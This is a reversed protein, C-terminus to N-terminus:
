PLTSLGSFNRPIYSSLASSTIYGAGNTLQNNNTPVSSSTIFGRGNTLQNNNTPITPRNSLSNYDGNFSSTGAGILSRVESGSIGSNLSPTSGNSLIAPNGYTTFGRGNTLQNNNTPISASTVYGAGNSLQNNNTPISPKNSLSNYDGNFSSTGAGILSRMEAASIGSNLSPTSGNSLVAPNGYTTYGAGNSLQTNNTPITPKNSLSNYDGNFSSTGAGILSRVESGSIGSNLTPSSGNSLIAPNGYTTYGAGNTLQNNNTPISSSTIYGSNNTLQSTQTPITPTGSLDTYRIQPLTLTGAGSQNATYTGTSNANHGYTKVTLAGNGVSSTASDLYDKTVLTSGSDSSATSAATVKGAFTANGDSFLTVKDVSNLSAKFATDGVTHEAFFGEKTIVRGDLDFTLDGGAFSAGGDAFIQSSVDTGTGNKRGGIFVASTSANVASNRYAQVSGDSLYSVAETSSSFDGAEVNGEFTSDGTVTLSDFTPSAGATSGVTTWKQGDFEYQINNIGNHKDGAVPNNPFNLAM